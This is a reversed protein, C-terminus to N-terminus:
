KSKAEADKATIDYVGAGVMVNKGKVEVCYSAKIVPDKGGPKPWYYEAWTNKKAASILVAGLATGKIDKFQILNKGILAPKEPHALTVGDMKLMFIYTDKWVFGGKKDNFIKTAAEVGKTEVLKAAENVKAVIEKPTAGDGATLSFVVLFSCLFLSIKRFM